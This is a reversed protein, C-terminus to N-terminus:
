IIILMFLSFETKYKTAADTKEIHTNNSIKLKQYRKQMFHTFIYPHISPTNNIFHYQKQFFNKSITHFSPSWSINKDSNVSRRQQM